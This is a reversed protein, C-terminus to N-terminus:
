YNWQIGTMPKTINVETDDHMRGAPRNKYHVDDEEAKVILGPADDGGAIMCMSGHPHGDLKTLLALLNRRSLVVTGDPELRM